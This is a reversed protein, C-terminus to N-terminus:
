VGSLLDTKAKQDGQTMWQTVERLEGKAEVTKAKKKPHPNISRKKTKTSKTDVLV